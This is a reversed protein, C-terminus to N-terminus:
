VMANIGMKRAESILITDVITHQNANLAFQSDTSTNASDGAVNNNVYVADWYEFHRDDPTVAVGLFAHEPIIVIEADLGISEVASALLATLEICMGSHQRWVEFPLKVDQLGGSTDGPGAYPVSEQAYHMQSARMADYIADVEDRVMQPSAKAYGVMGNPVPPQQVRLYATAKLVLESVAPDHPTVWAAIRMRNAAGWQMVLRSRLLLPSDNVYYAHGRSDAVLVHFSTNVDSTLKRLVQSTLPPPTFRFTQLTSSANVTQHVAQSFGDISESMFLAMPSGSSYQVTFLSTKTTLYSPYFASLLSSPSQVCIHVPAQGGCHEQNALANQQYRAYAQLGGVVYIGSSSVLIMVLLFLVIIKKGM